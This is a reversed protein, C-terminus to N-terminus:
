FPLHTLRRANPNEHFHSRASNANPKANFCDITLPRM